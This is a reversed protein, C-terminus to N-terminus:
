GTMRWTKMLVLSNQPDKRDHVLDHDVYSPRCRHLLSVKQQGEYARGEKRM